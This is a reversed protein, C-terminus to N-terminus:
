VSGGLMVTSAGGVASVFTDTFDEPASTSPGGVMTRFFDLLDNKRELPSDSSQGLSPTDDMKRCPENCARRLAGVLGGREFYKALPSNSDSSM